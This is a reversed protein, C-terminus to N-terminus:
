CDVSFYDDETITSTVETVSDYSVSSGALTNCDSSNSISLQSEDITSVSSCSIGSFQSTEDDIEMIGYSPAYASSANLVGGLITIFSPGLQIPQQSGSYDSSDNSGSSDDSDSTSDAYVVNGGESEGHTTMARQEITHVDFKDETVNYIISTFFSKCLPCEAKEHYCTGVFCKRIILHQCMACNSQSLKLWKKVIEM